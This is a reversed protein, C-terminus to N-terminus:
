TQKATDLFRQFVLPTTEFTSLPTPSNRASNPSKYCHTPTNRHQRASRQHEAQTSSRGCTGEIM